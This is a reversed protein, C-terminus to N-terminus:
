LLSWFVNNNNNNNDSQLEHQGHGTGHRRKRLASAVLTHVVSVVLGGKAEDGALHAPPSTAVCWDHVLAGCGGVSGHHQMCEPCQLGRQQDGPTRPLVGPPAQSRHVGVLTQERRCMLGAWRLQSGSDPVVPVFIAGM